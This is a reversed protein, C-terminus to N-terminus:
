SDFIIQNVRNPSFTLEVARLLHLWAAERRLYNYYSERLTQKERGGTEDVLMIMGPYINLIM